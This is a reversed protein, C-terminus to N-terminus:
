PKTIVSGADRQLASPPNLHPHTLYTDLTILAGLSTRREFPPCSYLAPPSLSPLLPFGSKDGLPFSRSAHRTTARGAVGQRAGRGRNCSRAYGGALMSPWALHPPGTTCPTAVPAHLAPLRTHGVGVRYWACDSVPLRIM